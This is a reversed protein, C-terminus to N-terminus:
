SASHPDALPDSASRGQLRLIREAQRFIPGDVMRGEFTSVGRHEGVAALLRQAWKVQEPDPAYASRIVPIQRSHIAVTADFGIAVADACEERLGETDPIDMHVADLALGGHAKVAMLTRSRAYRVVDRYRGDHRRSATGGLGAILDDAGWMAGIVNPLQVLDGVREVGKPSEVLVLVEHDHLAAATAPDEAKALM